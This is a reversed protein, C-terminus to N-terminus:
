PLATFRRTTPNDANAAILRATDAHPLELEPPAGAADSDGVAGVDVAGAASIGPQVGLVRFVTDEPLM